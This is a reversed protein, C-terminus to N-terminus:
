SVTATHKDTCSLIACAETMDDKDFLCYISIRRVSLILSQVRFYEIRNTRQYKTSSCAVRIIYHVEIPGNRLWDDTLVNSKLLCM